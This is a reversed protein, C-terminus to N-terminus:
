CLWLMVDMVCCLVIGCYRWLGLHGGEGELSGHFKSLRIHFVRNVGVRANICRDVGRWVVMWTDVKVRLVEMSSWFVASSSVEPM